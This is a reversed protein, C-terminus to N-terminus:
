IASLRIYYGLALLVIALILQAWITLSPISPVNALVNTDAQYNDAPTMDSIGSPPVAFASFVLDGSANNALQVSVNYTVSALQPLNLTNSFTAPNTADSSCGYIAATCSWLWSNVQAPRTASVSMGDADAPGHNTIVVVYNLTAGPLYSSQSDSVSIQLDLQPLNNVAFDVASSSTALTIPLTQIYGGLGLLGNVESGNDDNDTIDVDADPAPEYALTPIVGTSSRYNRLVGGPNFNIDPLRVIYDGAALGTFTYYGGGSTTQTALATTLNNADWLEVTVGDLGLEGGDFLGNNNTDNWVRDGLALTVPGAQAFTSALLASALWLYLVGLRQVNM